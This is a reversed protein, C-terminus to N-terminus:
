TADQYFPGSLKIEHSDYFVHCLKLIQTTKNENDTCIISTNHTVDTRLPNITESIGNMCAPM